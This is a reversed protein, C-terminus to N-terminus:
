IIYKFIDKFNRSIHPLRKNAQTYTNKELKIKITKFKELPLFFVICHNQKERRCDHTLFVPHKVGVKLKSM